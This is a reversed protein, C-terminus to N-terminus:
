PVNIGIFSMERPTAFLLTFFGVDSRAAGLFGSRRLRATYTNTPLAVAIVFLIIAVSLLTVDFLGPLVLPPMALGGPVVIQSMLLHLQNLFGLPAKPASPQPMAPASSALLIPPNLSGAAALTARDVSALAIASTSSASPTTQTAAPTAPPTVSPVPPTTPPTNPSPPTVGFTPTTALGSGASPDNIIPPPTTTGSSDTPAGATGGTNQDCSTSSQVQVSGNASVSTVCQSAQQQSSGPDTTTTSGSDALAVGATMAVTLAAIGFQAFVRRTM